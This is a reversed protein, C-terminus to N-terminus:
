NTKKSSNKEKELDEVIINHKKLTIYEDEIGKLLEEYKINLDKLEEKL